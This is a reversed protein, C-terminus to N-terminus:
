YLSDRYEGCPMYHVAVRKSGCGKCGGEAAFKANVQELLELMPKPISDIVAQEAANRRAAELKSLDTM